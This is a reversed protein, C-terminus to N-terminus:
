KPFLENAQRIREMFGYLPCKTGRASLVETM